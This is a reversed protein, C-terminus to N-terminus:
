TTESMGDAASGERQDTKSHSVSFRLNTRAFGTVFVQPSKLGLLKSVDDRVAPTATATLAITQVNGLYRERFHGLRAYDPSFDHGWESVCHAEDVAM